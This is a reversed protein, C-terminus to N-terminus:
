VLGRRVARVDFGILLRWWPRGCWGAWPPWSWVRRAAPTLGPGATGVWGRASWTSRVVSLPVGGSPAGTGPAEAASVFPVWAPSSGAFPPGVGPAWAVGAGAIPDGM